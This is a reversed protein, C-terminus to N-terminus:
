RHARKEAAGGYLEARALLVVGRGFPLAPVSASRRSNSEADRRCEWALRLREAGSIAPRGCTWACCSSILFMQATVHRHGSGALMAVVEEDSQGRLLLRILCWRGDLVKTALDRMSRKNASLGV